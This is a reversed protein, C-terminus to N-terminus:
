KTPRVPSAPIATTAQGQMARMQRRLKKLQDDRVDLEENVDNLAITFKDTDELTKKRFNELEIDKTEIKKKALELNRSEEKLKTSLLDFESKLKQHSLKLDDIQQQLEANKDILDKNQVDKVLQSKFESSGNSQFSIRKERQMTSLRSTYPRKFDDNQPLESLGLDEGGFGEEMKFDESNSLRDADKAEELKRELDRIRGNLEEIEEKYANIEQEHEKEISSLRQSSVFHETRLRELDGTMSHHENKLTNFKRKIEELQTTSEYLENNAIDKVKLLDQM